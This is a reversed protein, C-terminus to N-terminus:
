GRQVYRNLRLNEIEHPRKLHLPVRPNNEDGVRHANYGAHGIADLDHIGSMDNLRRRGFLDEGIRAMGVRDPQELRDWAEVGGALFLELRDPSQRGVQDIKRIHAWKHWPAIVRTFLAFLLVRGEELDIRTVPRRAPEPFFDALLRILVEHGEAVTM